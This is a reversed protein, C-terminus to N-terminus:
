NGTEKDHVDRNFPLRSTIPIKSVNAETKGRKAANDGASTIDIILKSDHSRKDLSLWINNFFKLFNKAFFSNKNDIYDISKQCCKIKGNPSEKNKMTEAIWSKKRYNTMRCIHDRYSYFDASTLLAFVM